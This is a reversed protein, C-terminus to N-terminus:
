KLNFISSFFNSLLNSFIPMKFRISTGMTLQSLNYTSKNNVSNGSNFNSNLDNQNEAASNIHTQQWFFDADFLTNLQQGGVLNQQEMPSLYEFYKLKVSFELKFLKIPNQHNEVM